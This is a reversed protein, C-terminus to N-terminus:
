IVRNQLPLPEPAAVNQLPVPKLSDQMDISQDFSISPSPVPQEIPSHRDLSSSTYINKDVLDDSRSSLNDDDTFSSTNDNNKQWSRWLFVGWIGACVLIFSAVGTCIGGIMRVPPDDPYFSNPNKSDYRMAITDGKKLTRNLVAPQVYSNGEKDKYTITVNCKNNKCDSATVTGTTAVDLTHKAVLMYIGFGLFALTFLLLVILMGIQAKM